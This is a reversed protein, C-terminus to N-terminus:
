WDSQWDVRILRVAPEIAEVYEGVLPILLAAPNGGEVELWQVAPAGKREAGSTRLGSVTGLDIGSRNVVRFGIIDALYHEGEPLAPFDSRAVAVAAGKVADAAERSDCGVWKAVLAEGQRKVQKVELARPEKDGLLWWNRAQELVAGDVAFPVIRVWGKVGYAGRVSGLEILDHLDM